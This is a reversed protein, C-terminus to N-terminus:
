CSAEIQAKEVLQAIHRVNEPRLLTYHDGELVQATANPLLALWHPQATANFSRDAGILLAPAQVQGDPRYGLMLGRNFTFAEFRRAV